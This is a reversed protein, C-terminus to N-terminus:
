DNEYVLMAKQIASFLRNPLVPKLICNHFGVSRCKEKDINIVDATFAIFVIDPRQKSASEVVEYPGEITDAIAHFSEREKQFTWNPPMTMIGIYRKYFISFELIYIIRM